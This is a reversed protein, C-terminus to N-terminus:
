EERRMCYWVIGTVIVIGVIIAIIIPVADGGTDESPDNGGGGPGPFSGGDLVNSFTKEDVNSTLMIETVFQNILILDEPSLNDTM